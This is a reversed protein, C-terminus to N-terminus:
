GEYLMDQVALGENEMEQVAAISLPTWPVIQLRSRPIPKLTHECIGFPVPAGSDIKKLAREIQWRIEAENSVSNLSFDQMDVDTGRDAQHTPTTHGDEFEMADRLLETIDARVDDLKAALVKRWKQLEVAKFPCKPINKSAM